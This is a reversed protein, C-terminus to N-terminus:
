TVGATLVPMSQMYILDVQHRGQVEGAKIHCPPRKPTEKTVNESYFKAISRQIYTADSGSLKLAGDGKSEDSYSFPQHFNRNKLWSPVQIPKCSVNCQTEQWPVM